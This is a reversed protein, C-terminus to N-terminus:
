LLLDKGTLFAMMSTTVYAVLLVPHSPFRQAPTHKSSLTGLLNQLISQMLLLIADDPAAKMGVLRVCNFGLARTHLFVEM